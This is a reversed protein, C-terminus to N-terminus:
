QIAVVHTFGEGKLVIARDGVLVKRGLKLASALVDPHITITAEAGRHRWALDEDLWGASCKASVALKDKLLKLTVIRDQEFEEDAFVGARDLMDGLGEPFEVEAGTSAVIKDIKPYEGQATRCSMVADNKAVFHAWGETLAIAEPEFACVASAAQAPLLFSPLKLGTLTGFTIQFNDCGVMRKGEGDVLVCTLVPSSTDKSASVAALHLLALFGKSLNQWAKADPMAIKDIPLKVDEWALGATMRGCSVTMENAAVDVEVEDGKTKGLINLLLTAPVAGENIDFGDPLPHSIAM